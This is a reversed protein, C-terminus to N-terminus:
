LKASIKNRIERLLDKTFVIIEYYARFGEQYSFDGRLIKNLKNQLFLLSEYTDNGFQIDLNYLRQLLKSTTEFSKGVLRNIEIFTEDFKTFGQLTFLPKATGFELKIAELKLGRHDDTGQDLIFELKMLSTEIQMTDVELTMILDKAEKLNKFHSEDNQQKLQRRFEIYGAISAISGLFSAIALFVTFPEPDIFSTNGNEQKFQLIGQKNCSENNVM